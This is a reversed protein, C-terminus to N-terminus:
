APAVTQTTPPQVPQPTLQFFAIALMLFTMWILIYGILIITLIAGILLVLGTTGFLGVGSRQKLTSLTRRIFVASIINSVFLIAFAIIGAAIFPLVDSLTINTTVVTMGSLSMWNGNWNPFIKYLFSSLSNLVLGVTVAIAVIIGAIETLTAYLINNFIGEQRYYGSLNKVGILLLILGVLDFLGGANPTAFPSAIAGLFILLAGIGSLNKGSEFSM